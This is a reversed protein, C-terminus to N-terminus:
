FYLFRRPYSRTKSSITNAFFLTQQKKLVLFYFYFIVQELFQVEIWSMSHQQLYTMKNKIAEKLQFIFRKSLNKQILNTNWSVVGGFSEKSTALIITKRKQLCGFHRWFNGLDYNLIFWKLPRVKLQLQLLVFVWIKFISKKISKFDFRLRSGWVTGTTLSDILTTSIDGWHPAHSRFAMWPTKTRLIMSDPILFLM